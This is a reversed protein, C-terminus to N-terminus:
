QSVEASCWRRHALVPRESGDDVRAAIAEELCDAAEILADEITEAQTIAEPLDRCTVVYGGSKDPTFKVAYTFQRM